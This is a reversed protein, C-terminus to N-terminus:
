LFAALGPVLSLCFSFDGLSTATAGSASNCAVVVTFDGLGLVTLFDKSSFTSEGVSAALVLILVTSDFDCFGNGPKFPDLAATFSGDFFALKHVSLCSDKATNSFVVLAKHWTGKLESSFTLFFSVVWGTDDCSSRSMTEESSSETPDGPLLPELTVRIFTRRM